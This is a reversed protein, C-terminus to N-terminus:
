IEIWSLRLENVENKYEYEQLVVIAFLLILNNTNKLVQIIESNKYNPILVEETWRRSLQLSIIYSLGSNIVATDDLM